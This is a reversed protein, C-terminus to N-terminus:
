LNQININKLAETDNESIKNVYSKGPAVECVIIEYISQNEGVKIM